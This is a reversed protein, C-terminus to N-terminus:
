FDQCSLFHLFLVGSHMQFAQMDQLIGLFLIGRLAQISEMKKTM